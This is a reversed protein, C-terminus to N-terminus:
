YYGRLYLYYIKIEHINKTDADYLKNIHIANNGCWYRETQAPILSYQLIKYLLKIPVGTIVRQKYLTYLIYLISKSAVYIYWLEM